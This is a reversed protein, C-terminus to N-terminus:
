EINLSLITLNVDKSAEKDTFLEVIPLTFEYSYLGKNIEFPELYIIKNDFEIFAMYSCDNPVENIIKKIDLYITALNKDKQSLEVGFAYNKFIDLHTYINESELLLKKDFRLPHKEKKIGNLNKICNKIVNLDNIKMENLSDKLQDIRDKIKSKIEDINELDNYSAKFQSSIHSKVNFMFNRLKAITEMSKGIEKNLKEQNDRYVQKIHHIIDDLFNLYANKQQELKGLLENYEKIKYEKNSITSKIEQFNEHFFNFLEVYRKYNIVHHNEHKKEEEKCIPCM